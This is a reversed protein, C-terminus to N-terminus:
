TKEKSEGIQSESRGALFEKFIYNPDRASRASILEALLGISAIHLAVIIMVFGGLMIPRVRLGAGGLWQFFFYVQPLMGIVFLVIAIRGFFHLPNMARRTVFMVTILDFFGNLIRKRGYKSKGYKRKFHRVRVEDVKYGEWGALVPIFRHLEGYVSISRVVNSEYAKFGCNFDHLRFGSIVSTVYNFIRSLFVKTWPDQRNRKWGSVLDVGEDLKRLLSPIESPDDQLDADITIVVDGRAQKFGVSLAASKGYNRRFSIVKVHTSNQHLERLVALSRDVSGDDVFIYEYEGGLERMASELADFLEPLSEEENYVPIVVSFDM